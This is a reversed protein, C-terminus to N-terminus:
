TQQRNEEIKSFYHVKLVWWPALCNILFVVQGKQLSQPIRFKGFPWFQPGVICKELSYYLFISFNAQWLKNFSCQRMSSRYHQALVCVCVCVFLMSYGGYKTSKFGTIKKRKGFSLYDTRPPISYKFAMFSFAVFSILALGDAAQLFHMISHIFCQCVDIAEFPQQKSSSM